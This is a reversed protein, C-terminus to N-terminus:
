VKVRKPPNDMEPTWEYPADEYGPLSRIAMNKLAECFHHAETEYYDDDECSQYEYCNILSLVEVPTPIRYSFTVKYPILYEADARGPLDTVPSSSYRIGVAKVNEDLLMQGVVDAMERTLQHRHSQLERSYAEYDGTYKITKTDVDYWSLPSHTRQPSTLGFRVMANIHAKDVVFASM